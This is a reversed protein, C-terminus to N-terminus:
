FISFVFFFSKIFFVLGNSFCCIFLKLLLVLDDKVGGNGEWGVGM